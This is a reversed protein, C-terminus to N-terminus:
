IFRTNQKKHKFIDVLTETLDTLGFKFTEAIKDIKGQQRKESNELHKLIHKSSDRGVTEEAAIVTISEENSM